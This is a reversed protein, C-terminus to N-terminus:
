EEIEGMTDAKLQTEEDTLGEAWKMQGELVEVTAESADNRRVRLRRRLEDPSAECALIAFPLNIGSALVRFRDRQSRQLFAADVIVSWGAILAGKALEELRSYTRDTAEPTYIAGNSADEPALGFLRKREVDSRVLVTNASEDALLRAFASTTKGSGSLGFTITLAGQRQCCFRSALTLYEHAEDSDGRIAAVKTRVLARYTSYFPLVNLIDFDGTEVLWESILWNALGPKHHEILDEYIFALENAQDIWRFAENFEICDFPTPRGDLLVINGLHMDGHCERVYGQAKRGAFNSRLREWERRTSEEMKTLLPKDSPLLRYLEEFNELAPRLIEAPDGFRSKQPAQTARGHFDAVTRVLDSILSPTLEGRDCVHDLRWKEDFRGMEVAWEIAPRVGILPTEISGGIPVTELYLEPAYRSNLALEKECFIRRAELTSYDVFPLLVPKKIKYAYGDALLVWSIHTELLDVTEAGYERRAWHLLSAILPPLNDSKIM